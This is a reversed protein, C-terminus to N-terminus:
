PGHWGAPLRLAWPWSCLVQRYWPIAPISGLPTGLGARGAAPGPVLPLSALGPRAGPPHRRHAAAATKGDARRLHSGGSNGPHHGTSRHPSHRPYAAPCRRACRRRGALRHRCHAVLRGAACLGRVRAARGTHGCDCAAGACDVHGRHSQRLRYGAEARRAACELVSYLVVTPGVLGLADGAFHLWRWGGGLVILVAAIARTRGDPLTARLLVRLGLILVAALLITFAAWRLDPAASELGRGVQALVWWWPHFLTPTQPLPSARNSTLLSHSLDHSWALRLAGAEGTLSPLRALLPALPPAGPSALRDAVVPFLAAALLVLWLTLYLPWRDSILLALRDFRATDGQPM